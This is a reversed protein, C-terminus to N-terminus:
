LGSKIPINGYYNIFKDYKRSLHFCSDNYLYNFLKKVEGVAGYELNYCTSTKYSYIKKHSLSCKERLLLEMKEIFLLSGSSIIFAIRDKNQRKRITVCGDGDFYGRIFHSLYDDEIIPFEIIKSKNQVIGIKELDKCIKTSHIDLKVMDPTVMSKLPNDAELERKIFNLVEADRNNIGITLSNRQKSNCGDAAIFGLIYAKEKSDINEFYDVNLSHIRNSHAREVKNDDLLKVITSASCNFLKGVKRTSKLNKYAETVQESPLNIRKRLRM